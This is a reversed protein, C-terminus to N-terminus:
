RQAWEATGCIANWLDPLAPTGPPGPTVLSSRLHWGTRGEARCVGLVAWSHGTCGLDWRIGLSPPLLTHGSHPQAARCSQSHQQCSPGALPTQVNKSSGKPHHLTIPSFLLLKLLPKQADGFGLPNWPLFCAPHAWLAASPLSISFQPKSATRAAVEGPPRPCCSPLEAKCHTPTSLGPVSARPFSGTENAAM